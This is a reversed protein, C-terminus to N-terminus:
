YFRGSHQREVTVDMERATTGELGGNGHLVRWDVTGTCYGGTWRERATGERGGNGHLVRWDVSMRDRHLCTCHSCARVCYIICYDLQKGLLDM